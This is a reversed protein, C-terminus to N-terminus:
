ENDDPALSQFLQYMSKGKNDGAATQGKGQGAAAKAAVGKPKTDNFSGVKSGKRSRGSKRGGNNAAQQAEQALKSGKPV